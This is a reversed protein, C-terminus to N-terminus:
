AVGEGRSEMALDDDSLTRFHAATKAQKRM